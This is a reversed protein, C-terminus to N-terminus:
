TDVGHASRHACNLIVEDLVFDLIRLIFVLLGYLAAIRDHDPYVPELLLFLFRASREAQIGFELALLYVPQTVQAGGATRERQLFAQSRQLLGCPAAIIQDWM